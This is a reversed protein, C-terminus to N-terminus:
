RLYPLYYVTFSESIWDVTVALVQGNETRDPCFLKETGRLDICVHGIDRFTRFSSNAILDNRRAIESESM